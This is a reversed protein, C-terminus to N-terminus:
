IRPGRGLSGPRAGARKRVESKERYLPSSLPSDRGGESPDELIRHPFHVTHQKARLRGM